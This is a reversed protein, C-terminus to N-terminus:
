IVVNNHHGPASPSRTGTGTSDFEGSNGLDAVWPRRLQDGHPGPCCLVSCVCACAFLCAGSTRQVQVINEEFPNYVNFRFGLFIVNTGAFVTQRFGIGNM